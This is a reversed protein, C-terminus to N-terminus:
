INEINAIRPKVPSFSGRCHAPEGACCAAMKANALFAKTLRVKAATHLLPAKGLNDHSFCWTMYFFFTSQTQSFKFRYNATIAVPQLFQLHVSESRM